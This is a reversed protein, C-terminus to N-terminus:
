DEKVKSELTSATAALLREPSGAKTFNTNAGAGLIAPCAEPRGSLMVVSLDECFSRLIPLPEFGSVGPLEWCLLLLDPCSAEGQDMLDNADAAQGVVEFESHEEPLVRLRYRVNSEDDALLIRM